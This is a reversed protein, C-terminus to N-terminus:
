ALVESISLNKLMRRSFARWVLLADAACGAAWGVAELRWTGPAFDITIGVAGMAFCCLCLRFFRGTDVGLVMFEALEEVVIAVACNGGFDSTVGEPKVRLKGKGLKTSLFCRECFTRNASPFRELALVSEDALPFGEFFLAGFTAAVLSFGATVDTEEPGATSTPDAFGESTEPGDIAVEVLLIGDVGGKTWTGAVCGLLSLEWLM